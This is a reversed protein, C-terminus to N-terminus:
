DTEDEVETGDFGYIVYKKEDLKAVEGGSRICNLEEDSSFLIEDDDKLGTIFKRFEKVKM